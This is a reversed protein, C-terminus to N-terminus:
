SIKTGNPLEMNPQLLVVDDAEPVGGLVLVESKFGAIPKPPFNVVAVIQQGILGEPSYRRTIQASSQKIGLEGFDIELKIAPVRAEKFAEAKRVTGIRLDLTLFDEFNAM